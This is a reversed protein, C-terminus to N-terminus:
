WFGNRDELVTDAVAHGEYAQMASYSDPLITRLQLISARNNCELGPLTQTAIMMRNSGNGDELASDPLANSNM